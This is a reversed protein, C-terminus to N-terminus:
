LLEIRLSLTRSSGLNEAAGEVFLHESPFGRVLAYELASAARLSSLAFNSTIADRKLDSIARSDSHGIFHLEVKGIYPKLVALVRDLEIKLLGDVRFQRPRYLNPSFRIALRNRLPESTPTQGLEAFATELRARIKDKAHSSEAGETGEGAGDNPKAHLSVAGNRQQQAAQAPIPSPVAPAAQVGGPAAGQVSVAIESLANEKESDSFSFFIVFFSMLVMLLDSYSVAWSHSDDGSELAVNGARELMEHRMGPGAQPRARPRKLDDPLM